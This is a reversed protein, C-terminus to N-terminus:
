PYLAKKVLGQLLVKKIRGPFKVKRDRAFAKLDNYSMKKVIGWSPLPQKSYPAAKTPAAKKLKVVKLTRPSITLGKKNLGEVFKEPSLYTFDPNTSDRTLFLEGDSDRAPRYKTKKLM